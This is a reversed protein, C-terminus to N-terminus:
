LPGLRHTNWVAGPASPLPSAAAYGIVGCNKTVDTCAQMWRVRTGAVTVPYVFSMGVFIRHNSVDADLTMTRLGGTFNAFSGTPLKIQSNLNWVIAGVGVKRVVHAAFDVHYWGTEKYIMEDNTDDFELSSLDAPNVFTVQNFTIVQQVNNTVCPQFIEASENISSVRIARVKQLDGIENKATLFNDRVSQTTATGATPNSANIASTM